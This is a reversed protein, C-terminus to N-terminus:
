RRFTCIVMRQRCNRRSFIPFVLLYHTTFSICLITTFSLLAPHLFLVGAIMTNILSTFIMANRAPHLVRNNRLAINRRFINLQNQWDGGLDMIERLIDISSSTGKDVDKDNSKKMSLIKVNEPNDSLLKFYNTHLEQVNKQGEEKTAVMADFFISWETYTVNTTQIYFSQLKRKLSPVTSWAGLGVEVGGRVSSVTPIRAFFPPLPVYAVTASVFCVFLIHVPFSSLSM